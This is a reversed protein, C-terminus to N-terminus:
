ENTAKIYSPFCLNYCHLARYRCNLLSLYNVQTGHARWWAHLQRSVGPAGCNLCWYFLDYCPCSGQLVVHVLGNLSTLGYKRTSAWSHSTDTSPHCLHAMENGVQYRTLPSIKPSPRWDPIMKGGHCPRGQSSRHLVARTGKRLIQRSSRLLSRM